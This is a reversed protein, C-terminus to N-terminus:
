RAHDEIMSFGQERDNAHGRYHGLITMDPALVVKYPVAGTWEPVARTIPMSEPDVMVPYDGDVGLEDWAIAVDADPFVGHQAGEYLV